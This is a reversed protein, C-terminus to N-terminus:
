ISVRYVHSPVPRTDRTDSLTNDDLSTCDYFLSDGGETAHDEDFDDSLDDDDDDGDLLGKLEVEAALDRDLDYAEDGEDPLQRSIDFAFYALVAALFYPWGPMIGGESLTMLIGFVLPGIGETLAKIGNVAGLVEGVSEPPVSASVLSSLSPYVLNGLLSLAVCLFLQWFEYACALVVCQCAFAFLGLRMTKKEGVAPVIIRVLVVESIVTCLGFASMLEGLRHPGLHFRNAAYLVLTSIVAYLGTYYLFTIKAVTILLRNGGFIKLTDFPSWHRPIEHKM